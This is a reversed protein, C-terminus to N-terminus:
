RRRVERGRGLLAGVGVSSGALEAARDLLLSGLAADPPVGLETLLGVGAAEVVGLGAASVPLFAFTYVLPHLLFFAEPPASAGAALAAFFWRTSTLVWSAATLAAAPPLAGATEGMAEGVGELWAWLSRPRGSTIRRLTSRIRGSAASALGAAMAFSILAGVVASSSGRGALGLYASAAALVASRLAFDVSQAAFVAGAVADRDAGDAALPIVVLYGARAPTVAGALYGALHPLLVSRFPARGGTLIALRLGTVSAAALHCIVAALFPLPDAGEIRGVVRGAGAWWVVAALASLGVALSAVRGVVDSRGWRPSM